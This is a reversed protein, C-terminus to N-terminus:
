KKEWDAFPGSECKDIDYLCIRVIQQDKQQESWAAGFVIGSPDFNAVPYASM